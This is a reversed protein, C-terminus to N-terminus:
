PLSIRGYLRLAVEPKPAPRTLAENGASPAGRTLVTKAQIEEYHAGGM